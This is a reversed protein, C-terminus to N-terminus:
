SIIGKIQLVKKKKFLQNPLHFLANVNQIPAASSKQKRRLQTSRCTIKIIRLDTEKESIEKSVYVSECSLIDCEVHFM